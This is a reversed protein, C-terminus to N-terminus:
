DSKSFEKTTGRYVPVIPVNRTEFAREPEGLRKMILEVALIASTNTDQKITSLNNSLWSAQEIDDFGLLQIDEPVKIGFKFRLGDLVGLALLDTPCFVADFDDIREAINGAIDLGDEYRQSQTNLMCVDFSDNRCNEAFKRARGAVTYTREKPELVCFRRVGSNYLMDYALKGADAVDLQVRDAEGVSMDRNVLVVPVSLRACEDIIDGPPTDSTIIMGAVNYNLLRSMLDRVDYNSEATILIPMLGQNVLEKATIKVQLARYPTDLRSAVIGVFNTTNNQLGRALYNIRYGLSNAAELVRDKTEKSVKGNESFARSVASRHVGALKAVDFSTPKKKM